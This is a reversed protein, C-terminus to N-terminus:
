TVRFRRKRPSDSAVVDSQRVIADTSRVVMDAM